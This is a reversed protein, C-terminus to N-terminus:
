KFPEIQNFVVFALHTPLDKLQKEEIFETERETSLKVQLDANLRNRALVIIFRNAGVEKYKFARWKPPNAKKPDVM